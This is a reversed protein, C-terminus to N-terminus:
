SLQEALVKANRKASMFALQLVLLYPCMENKFSAMLQLYYYPHCSSNIFCEGDGLCGTFYKRLGMEGWEGWSVRSWGCHGGGQEKFM